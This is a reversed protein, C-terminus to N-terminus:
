AFMLCFNVRKFVELRNKLATSRLANHLDRRSSELSYKIPFIAKICGLAFGAFSEREGHVSMMIIVSGGPENTSATDWIFFYRKSKFNSWSREM